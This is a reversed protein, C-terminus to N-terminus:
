LGYPPTSPSCMSVQAPFPPTPPPPTYRVLPKAADWVLLLTAALAPMNGWKRRVVSGEELRNIVVTAAAAAMGMAITFTM